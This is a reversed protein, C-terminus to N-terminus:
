RTVDTYKGAAPEFLGAYFQSDIPYVEFGSVVDSNYVAQRRGFRIFAMPSDRVISRQLRRYVQQRELADYTRLGAELRSLVEENRYHNINCCAPSFQNPHFLNHVYADPDWGASWGVAFLKNEMHSEPNLLQRVYTGFEVSELSVDFFRTDNMEEMIITSWDVREQNESNTVITTQFPPEFGAEEFGRGLLEEAQGPDYGAYQTRMENQFSESAFRVEEGAETYQRALPSVPAYAPSGIGDYVTDVIDERPILRTTGLRVRRHQFPTEAAPHMPYIFLDFGGATRSSYTFQNDTRYSEVRGPPPANIIDVDGAELASARQSKGQVIRLTVTGIPPEAPMGGTGEFWYDDFRSVRFFSGSEWSDFEFPGTGVPEESLQSREVPTDEGDATETVTQQAYERPVIPVTALAYRIPAYPESLTLDLTYEDRVVSDAYWDYVDAARPTGEYREYSAKVDSATVEGGTHFRVGERLHIRLETDTPREVARALSPQPQGQFDVFLVGEYILDTAKASTTDNIRTPDANSIGSGLTARVETQGGTSTIETCGALGTAGAVGAIKMMTRRDIASGSSGEAQEM